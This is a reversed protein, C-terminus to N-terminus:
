EVNRIVPVLLGQPASVAVSIDYYDRFLIDNGDLSANVIPYKMLSYQAAKVFASMFGLKIKNTEVFMDQLEKRLLSIESMDVENFTTLM